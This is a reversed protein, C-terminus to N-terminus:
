SIFINPPWSVAGCMSQSACFTGAPAVTPTSPATSPTAAARASLSASVARPTL